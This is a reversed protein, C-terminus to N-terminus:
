ADLLQLLRLAQSRDTGPPNRRASPGGPLLLSLWFMAFVRRAALLRHPDVDIEARVGSMDVERVGLHEILIALETAPDSVASDEFDIIRVRRGDWLYNSLNPDRHGIVILGPKSRLLEPDPGQWWQLAADHAAATTPDAPRPGDTLRRAFALDDSWPRVDHADDVPVAWLDRIAAALGSAQVTSLRTALPEGPVITMTVTPPVHDLEAAVPAPVLDAAYRHIHRLAGWEHRPEGRDWAVYRKTVIGEGWMLGHTSVM